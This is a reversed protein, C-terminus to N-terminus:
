PLLRWQMRNTKTMGMCILFSGADEAYLVEDLYRDRQVRYYLNGDRLYSVIIDSTPNGLPRKDDLSCRLHVSGAPLYPFFEQTSTLSNYYWFTSGGGDTFAVFPRMLQDFALGLETIGPRTFLVSPATDPASVIVDAGSYGVTWVKVNSGQSADNLAVGGMEYDVLLDLPGKAPHLFPGAIPDPTPVDGPIM